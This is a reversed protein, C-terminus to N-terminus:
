YLWKLQTGGKFRGYYFVSNSDVNLSRTGFNRAIKYFHRFEQTTYFDMDDKSIMANNKPTLIAVSGDVVTNQPLFVARPYYSLNPVLVLGNKNFYKRVALDDVSDIYSDYGEINIIQNDSINRSKLVRIRGTPKTLRKTIQRDRFVDFTGFEMQGAIQDFFADRYILWTPYADSMVYSQNVYSVKRTINSEIRLRNDQLVRKKTNIIFGITEIKVHSFGEEGHDIITVFSLKSLLERTKNFEPTSLISKPSILAVHNGLRIAKELFFSFINSTQKNTVNSKYERYKDVSAKIRGFPPNGIVIDYRGNSRMLLFDENILNIEFNNPIPLYKLLHRLVTLANEDIDVVDLIVRSIDRYKKCLLPIFSGVGVSPELIQVCSKAKFEPLGKILPYCIDQRTYFAAHKQRQANALESIRFLDPYSLGSSNNDIYSILNDLIELHNKSIINQVQSEMLKPRLLLTKVKSAIQRFVSTPVAEGICQRINLEEKSLLREKEEQSLANLEELDKDLWRFEDPITMMRMLERITFVRDDRPHITSQSALIDNRTHVCPAPKDWYCRRYKDKNKNQNFVMKGNIIRHPRKYPDTNDFASEGEKLNAIWSLMNREYRKFAHFFDNDDIEGMISLHKLDGVLVRLTKAEQREPFLDYPTIELLDKRTGIVLTRTRSSSGGYDKFNIVESFINYKGGLNIEIAEKIPKDVGDLDTCFTALFTAVNEFLFIKPNIDITCKISEVVLSNRVREDRKKHNAVSMGQCPPTAILVSIEDVGEEEKWRRIEEHIAERTIWNRIDGLIYGTKYKCIQNSHQINLRREILENTAVCNFDEQRFGFCGVGAGSFLSIYSLLGNQNLNKRLMKEM